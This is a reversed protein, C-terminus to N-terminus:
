VGEVLVMNMVAAGKRANRAKLYEPSDYYAKAKDYNEFKLVVMRRGGPNGELTESRGGRALVDVHHAEFAASSLKKYEEYQAPDTVDVQAIIYASPM